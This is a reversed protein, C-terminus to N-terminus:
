PEGGGETFASKELEDLTEMTFGVQMLKHGEHRLGVLEALKMSMAECLRHAKVALKVAEDEELSKIDKALTALKDVRAVQIM